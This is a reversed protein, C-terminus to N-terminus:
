GVPCQDDYTIVTTRGFNSTSIGGGYADLVYGVNYRATIYSISQTFLESVFHIVGDPVHLTVWYLSPQSM